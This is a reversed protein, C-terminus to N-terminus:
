KLGNSLSTFTKLGVDVGLGRNTPIVDKHTTQFEKNDIEVSFSAYYKDANQSISVSNIKGKFRLNERM